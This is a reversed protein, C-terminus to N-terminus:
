DNFIYLLKKKNKGAHKWCNSITDESVKDWAEKILFIAQKVNPMILEEKEEIMRVCFKTLLFRYFAKFSRIIGQDCPQIISTTNPPLFFVEVYTLKKILEPTINHGGANDVLEVKNRKPKSINALLQSM